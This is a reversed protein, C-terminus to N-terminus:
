PLVERMLDTAMMWDMLHEFHAFSLNWGKKEEKHSIDMQM